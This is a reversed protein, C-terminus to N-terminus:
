TCLIALKRKEEWGLRYHKGLMGKALDMPLIKIAAEELVLKSMEVDRAPMLIYQQFLYAHKDSRPNHQTELTIAKDILPCSSLM